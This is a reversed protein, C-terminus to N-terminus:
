AKVQVEDWPPKKASHLAPKRGKGLFLDAAAAETRGALQFRSDAVEELLVVTLGLGEDPGFGGVM